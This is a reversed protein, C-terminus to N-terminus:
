ILYIRIHLFCIQLGRYLYDMQLMLVLQQSVAQGACAGVEIWHLFKFDVVRRGAVAEPASLCCGVFSPSEGTGQFQCHYHCEIHSKTIERIWM